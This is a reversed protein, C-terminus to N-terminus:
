LCNSNRYARLRRYRCGIVACAFVVLVEVIDGSTLNLLGQLAERLKAVWGAEDPHMSVSIFTDFIM